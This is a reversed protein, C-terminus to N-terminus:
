VYIENISNIEGIGKIAVIRGDKLLEKEVEKRNLLTTYGKGEKIKERFSYLDNLNNDVQFIGCLFLEDESNVFEHGYTDETVKLYFNFNNYPVNKLIGNWLKIKIGNYVKAKGM